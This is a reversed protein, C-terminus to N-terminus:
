IVIPSWRGQFIHKTCHVQNTRAATGGNPVSDPVCAHGFVSHQGPQERDRLFSALAAELYLSFAFVPTRQLYM